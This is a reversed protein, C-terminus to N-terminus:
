EWRALRLVSTLAPHRSIMDIENGEVLRYLIQEGRVSESIVNKREMVVLWDNIEAEVALESAPNICIPFNVARLLPIDGGSDGCGWIYHEDIGQLEPQALVKQMCAVKKERDIIDAQSIMRGDDGIVFTSGFCQNIGWKKCFIEVATIPSASIACVYWGQKQKIEILARTFRYVNHWSQEVVEAVTVQYDDFRIDPLRDEFIKIAQTIFTGFSLERAKWANEALQVQLKVTRPLVGRDVLGYLIELFLSWRKWTGDIDTFLVGQYQSAM